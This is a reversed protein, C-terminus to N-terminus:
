EYFRVDDVAFDFQLDKDVLFLVAIAETPEFTAPKGWGGQRMMAFPVQYEKWDATLELKVGHLDECEQGMTTSPTCSGGRDTPTVASTEVAVRVDVNGKAKFALVKYRSADYKSRSGTMGVAEPNNLDFGMGAGWETFGSGTTGAAYPTGDAGGATPSFGTGPPMQTGTMTEDNFTYWGGLRGNAELIADDGDDLDDILDAAGVAADPGSDEGGGAACGAGAVGLTGAMIVTGLLNTRM